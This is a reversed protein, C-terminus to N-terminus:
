GTFNNAFTNFDNLDVRGDLNFDGPTVVLPGENFHVNTPEGYFGVAFFKWNEEGPAGYTKIVFGAEIPFPNEIGYQWDFRM